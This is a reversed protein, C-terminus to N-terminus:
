PSCRTNAACLWANRNVTPVSSKWTGNLPESITIAAPIPNNMSVVTPSPRNMEVIEFIKERDTFTYFVPTMAGVDAAFTGLWVLHSAIRFLEALMVAHQPGVDAASDAVHEKPILLIHTPAQPNNDRFAYVHTTEGVQKAAIKGAVIQCFICDSM